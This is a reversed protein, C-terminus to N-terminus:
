LEGHFAVGYAVAEVNIGAEFGKEHCGGGKVKGDGVADAKGGFADNGHFGADVAGDVEAMGGFGGLLGAGGGGGVDRGSPLNWAGGAGGGGGQEEAVLEEGDFGRGGGEVLDAGVATAVENGAAAAEFFPQFVGGGGDGVARGHAVTAKDGMEALPELQGRFNGESPEEGGGGGGRRQGGRGGESALDGAGAAGEGCEKGVVGGKGAELATKFGIQANEGGAPADGIEGGVAVEGTDAGGRRGGDLGRFPVGGLGKKAKGAEGM